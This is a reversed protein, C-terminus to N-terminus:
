KHELFFHLVKLPLIFSMHLHSIMPSKTKSCEKHIKNDQKLRSRNYFMRLTNKNMKKNGHIEKKLYCSRCRMKHKDQVKLRVTWTTICFECLIKPYVFLRTVPCISCIDSWEIVCSVFTLHNLMLIIVLIIKCTPYLSPQTYTSKIWVKQLDSTIESLVHGGIICIM